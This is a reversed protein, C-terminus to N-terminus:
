RKGRKTTTKKKALAELTARTPVYGRTGNIIVRHRGPKDPWDLTPPALVPSREAIMQRLLMAIQRQALRSM